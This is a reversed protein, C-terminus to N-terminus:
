CSQQLQVLDVVFLINLPVDRGFALSGPTAWDLQSHAACRAAHMCLAFAADITAQKDEEKVPPHRELYTRIIQAM